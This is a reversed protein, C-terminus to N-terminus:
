RIKVVDLFVEQSTCAGTSLLEINPINVNTFRGWEGLRGFRFLDDSKNGSATRAICGPRYGGGAFSLRAAALNTATCDMGIVSYEGSPLTQDFALSGITWTNSTCTTSSTARLTYCPGQPAMKRGFDIWLFCYCQQAGANSQVCDVGLEDAPDIVLDYDAWDCINPVDSPTASAEVPIISPLGVNRFKPTNVRGRSMDASMLLAWKLRGQEPLLYNNSSTKTLISDVIGSIPLYSTGNAISSTFCALHQRM